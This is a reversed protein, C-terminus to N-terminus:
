RRARRRRLGLAALGLVSLGGTSWAGKAPGPAVDCAPGGGTPLSDPV